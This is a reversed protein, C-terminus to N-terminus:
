INIINSVNREMYELFFFLFFTKITVMCFYYVFLERKHTYLITEMKNTNTTIQKKKTTKSIKEAIKQFHTQSRIIEEKFFDRTEKEIDCQLNEKEKEIYVYIRNTFSSYDM